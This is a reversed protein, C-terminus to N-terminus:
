KAPEAAKRGRKQTGRLARIRDRSVSKGQFMGRASAVANAETEAPGSYVQRYLAFWAKLHEESVPPGKQESEPEEAPKEPEPAKKVWTQKPPPRPPPLTGRVDAPFLKIGFGQYVTSTGSGPLFFKADGAGWFDSGHKSFLKWFRRPILEPRWKPVPARDKPTASSTSAVTEILGGVLRQWIANAAANRGDVCTTAYALAQSPTWWAELEEATIEREAAKEAAMELEARGRFLILSFAGPIRAGRAPRAVESLLILQFESV